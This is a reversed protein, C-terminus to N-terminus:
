RVLLVACSYCVGPVYSTGPRYVLAPVADGGAALQQSFAVRRAQVMDDCVRLLVLLDQRYREIDARHDATLRAIPKVKLRDGVASVEFGEVELRVLVAVACSHLVSAAVESLDPMPTM